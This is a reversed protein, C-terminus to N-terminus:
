KVADPLSTALPDGLTFYQSWYGDCKTSIVFIKWDGFNDNKTTLFAINYIHTHTLTLMALLQVFYMNTIILLTYM